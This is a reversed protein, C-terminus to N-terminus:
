NDFQFPLEITKYFWGGDTDTGVCQMRDFVIGEIMQERFLADLTDMFGDMVVAGGGDAPVYIQAMLVGVRRQGTDPDGTMVLRGRNTSLVLVRLWATGIEPKYVENDFAIPTLPDNAGDVWNLLVYSEITQRITAWDGTDDRAEIAFLTGPTGDGIDVGRRVDDPDLLPFGLGGANTAVSGGTVLSLTNGFSYSM